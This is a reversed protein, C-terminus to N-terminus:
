VPNKRNRSDTSRSIEEEQSFELGPKCYVSYFFYGVDVLCLSYASIYLPGFLKMVGAGAKGASSLSVVIHGLEHIRFLYPASLLVM